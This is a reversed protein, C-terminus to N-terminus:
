KWFKIWRMIFICFWFFFWFFQFFFNWLSEILTESGNSMKLFLVKMSTIKLTSDLEAVIELRPCNMVFKYTKKQVRLNLRQSWNVAKHIPISGLNNEFTQEVCKIQGYDFFSFRFDFFFEFFLIWFFPIEIDWPEWMDDQFTLHWFLEFNLSSNLNTLILPSIGNVDKIKLFWNDRAVKEKLIEAIAPFQVYTINLLKSLVFNQNLFVLFVFTKRQREITKRSDNEKTVSSPIKLSSKRPLSHDSNSLFVNM